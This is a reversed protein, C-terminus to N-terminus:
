VQRLNQHVSLFFLDSIITKIEDNAIRRLKEVTQIQKAMLIEQKSKSEQVLFSMAIGL